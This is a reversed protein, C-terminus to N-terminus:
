VMRISFCRAPIYISLSIILTRLSVQMVRGGKSDDTMKSLLLFMNIWAHYTTITNRQDSKLIKRLVTIGLKFYNSIWRFTPQIGRLTHFSGNNGYRGQHSRSNTTSRQGSSLCIQSGRSRIGMVLFMFGVSPLSFGGSNGNSDQVITGGFQLTDHGQETHHTAMHYMRISCDITSWFSHTSFGDIM